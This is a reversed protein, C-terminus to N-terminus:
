RTEEKAYDRAIWFFVCLIGVLLFWAILDEDCVFAFIDLLVFPAVFAAVCYRINM